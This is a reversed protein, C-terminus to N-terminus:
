TDLIEEVRFRDTTIIAILQSMLMKKVAGWQGKLFKIVKAV